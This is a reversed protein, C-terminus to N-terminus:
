RGMLGKLQSLLDGGGVSITGVRDCIRELYELEKLKYLTENEEMMHATNLLSRTAAVEDRRIIANAQANREAILVRNMMERVDGPLIIDKVGANMFCVGLEEARERLMGLLSASLAGRAKLLADVALGSVLERAVLQVANYLKSEHQACEVVLDPQDVKYDVIINLRVAVRDETLMEQGSVELMKHACYVTRVIVNVPGNWFYYVGCGLVRQFEGDYYLYGQYGSDVYVRQWKIISSYKKVIEVPVEPDGCPVEEITRSHDINWLAGDGRDLELYPAGNKLLVLATDPKKVFRLVSKAFNEDRLMTELPLESKVLGDAKLIEVEDGLRKSISHRGPLLMKIFRGHRTLMGRQSEHIIIKM